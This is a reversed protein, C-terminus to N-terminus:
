RRQLSRSCAGATGELFLNGWHDCVTVTITTFPGNSLSYKFWPLSICEGAPRGYAGPYQDSALAAHVHDNRPVVKRRKSQSLRRMGM